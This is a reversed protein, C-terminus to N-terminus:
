TEYSTNTRNVIPDTATCSFHADIPVATYFGLRIRVQSLLRPRHQHTQPFPRALRPDCEPARGVGAYRDERRSRMLPRGTFAALSATAYTKAKQEAGCISPVLGNMGAYSARLLDGQV